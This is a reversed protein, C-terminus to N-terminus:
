GGRLGVFAGAFLGGRTWVLADDVTHTIPRAAGLLLTAEFTAGLVTTHASVPLLLLPSLAAGSDSEPLWWGHGLGGALLAIGGGWTEQQHSLALGVTPGLEAIGAGAAVAGDVLLLAAPGAEVSGWRAWPPADLQLAGAM